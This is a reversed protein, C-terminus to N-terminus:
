KNKMIMRMITMMMMMMLMMLMVVIIRNLSIVTLNWKVLWSSEKCEGGGQFFFSPFLGKGGVEKRFEGQGKGKEPHMCTSITHARSIM